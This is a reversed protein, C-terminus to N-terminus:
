NGSNVANEMLQQRTAEQIKALSENLKELLKDDSKRVGISVVKDAEDLEFQEELQIYVYGEQSAVIGKAVPEELVTITKNSTDSNIANIILPVSELPTARKANANKENIQVALDDYVTNAQGIITAGSLDNFTKASAYQSSEKMVLVHTSTYYPNTFSISEKREETPSMGAIILDITGSKLAIVLGDWEIMQIELEYGLDDAILKAIQVDYGDAYMNSANSIPVNSDTKETETWNFPAYACELGVRLVGSEEDFTPESCGILCMSFFLVLVLLIKRM